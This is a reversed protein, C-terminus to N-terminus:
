LTGKTSPVDNHELRAAAHLALAFSKFAAELLHHGNEGRICDIHLTMLSAYALSQFFHGVLETDFTGVKPVPVPVNYVCYPRGSLDLAARVLAEDM